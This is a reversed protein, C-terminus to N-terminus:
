IIRTSECVMASVGGQLSPISNNADVALAHQTVDCQWTDGCHAVLVRVSGNSLHTFSLKAGTFRLNPAKVVVKFSQWRAEGGAIAANAHFYSAGHNPIWAIATVWVIGIMISGQMLLLHWWTCLPLRRLM